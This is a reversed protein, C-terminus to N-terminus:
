YSEKMLKMASPINEIIDRAILGDEGKKSSSIDGSLGHIYVALKTAEFINYNQSVITSIIGTLVDGSGPTAMGPNGTKNIYVEKGNTVITNKGKLVVILGHKKAFDIAIEERNEHITKVSIGILRSMEMEHPTFIM